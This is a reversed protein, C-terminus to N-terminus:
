APMAKTYGAHRSIEADADVDLMALYDDHQVDSLIFFEVFDHFNKERIVAISFGANKFADLWDAQARSLRDKGVKVEIAWVAHPTMLIWDPFGPQSYRSDHTHYHLYGKMQCAKRICEDIARHTINPKPTM